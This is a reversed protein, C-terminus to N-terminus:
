FVMILNLHTWTRPSNKLQAAEIMSLAIVSKGAGTAACLIQRIHNERFGNRLAEISNNQYPRLIM